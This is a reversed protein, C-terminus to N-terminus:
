GNDGKSVDHGHGDDSLAPGFSRDEARATQPPGPPRTICMGPCAPFEFSESPRTRLDLADSHLLSSQVTHPFPGAPRLAPDFSAPHPQEAARLPSSAPRLGYGIGRLNSVCYVRVPREGQAPITLVHWSSELLEARLTLNSIRGGSTSREAPCDHTLAPERIM